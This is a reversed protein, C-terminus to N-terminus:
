KRKVSELLARRIEEDPQLICVEIKGEYKYAVATQPLEARKLVACHTRAGKYRALIEEPAGVAVITRLSFSDVERMYRGYRFSLHLMGGTLEYEYQLIYRRLAILAIGAGILWFLIKAAGGGIHRALLSMAMSDLLLAAILMAVAGIGSLASLPPNKLQQRHM